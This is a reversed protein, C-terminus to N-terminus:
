GNAELVMFWFLGRKKMVQGMWPLKNSPISFHTLAAMIVAQSVGWESV